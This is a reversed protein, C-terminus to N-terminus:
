IYYNEFYGEWFQWKPTVKVKFPLTLTVSIKCILNKKSASYASLTEDLDSFFFGSFLSSYYVRAFIIANVM